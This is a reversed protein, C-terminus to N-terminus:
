LRLSSPITPHPCLASVNVPKKTPCVSQRSALHLTVCDMFHYTPGLPTWSGSNIQKIVVRTCPSQVQSCYSLCVRLVVRCRLRVPIHTRLKWCPWDPSENRLESSCRLGWCMRRFTPWLSCSPGENQTLPLNGISTALHLHQTFQMSKCTTATRDVQQWETKLGFPGDRYTLEQYIRHGMQQCQM